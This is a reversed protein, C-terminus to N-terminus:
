AARVHTAAPQEPAARAAGDNALLSALVSAPVQLRAARQRVLKMGDRATSRRATGPDRMAMAMATPEPAATRESATDGDALISRALDRRHEAKISEDTTWILFPPLAALAHARAWVAEPVLTTRRQAAQMLINWSRQFMPPAAIPKTARLSADPCVLSLAVVDPHQRGLESQLRRVIGDLAAIDRNPDRDREVLLLHGGVLRAMPNPIKDFLLDSLEANLVKREDALATRAVEIVKYDDDTCELSADLSRLMVSVRPRIDAEQQQAGARRLIYVELAWGPSAVLSQEIVV